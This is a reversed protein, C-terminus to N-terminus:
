RSVSFQDVLRAAGVHVPVAYIQVKIQKPAVDVLAYHYAEDSRQAIVAGARADFKSFDETIESRKGGPSVRAVIMGEEALYDHAHVSGRVTTSLLPYTRSFSQDHASLSLYGRM